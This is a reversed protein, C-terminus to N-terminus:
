VAMRQRLSRQTVLFVFSLHSAVSKRLAEDRQGEGRVNMKPLTAHRALLADTYALLIFFDQM